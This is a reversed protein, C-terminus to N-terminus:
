TNKTATSACQTWKASVKGIARSAAAGAHERGASTHGTAKVAFTAAISQRVHCEGIPRERATTASQANNQAQFIASRSAIEASWERAMVRHLRTTLQAATSAPAQLPRPVTLVTPLPPLPLLVVRQLDLALGLTWLPVQQEPPLPTLCLLPSLGARAVKGPGLLGILLRGPRGGPRDPRHKGRPPPLHRGVSVTTTPGVSGHGAQNLGSMARSRGLAM